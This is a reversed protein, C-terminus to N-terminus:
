WFPMGSLYHFRFEVGCIEKYIVDEKGSGSGEKTQNGQLIVVIDM